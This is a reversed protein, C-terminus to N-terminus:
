HADTKVRPEPLNNAFKAPLLIKIFNRCHKNITRIREKPSTAQAPAASSAGVTGGVNGGDGVVWGLGEGV